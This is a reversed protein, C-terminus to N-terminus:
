THTSPPSTSVCSESERGSVDSDLSILFLALPFGRAAGAETRTDAMAPVKPGGAPQRLGGCAKKATWPVM